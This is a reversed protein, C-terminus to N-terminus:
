KKRQNKYIAIGFVCSTLGAIVIIIGTIVAWVEGCSFIAMSIGFYLAPFILLIM